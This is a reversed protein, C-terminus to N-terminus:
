IMWGGALDVVTLNDSLVGKNYLSCLNHYILIEQFLLLGPVKEILM